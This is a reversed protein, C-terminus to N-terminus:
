NAIVEHQLHTHAAGHESLCPQRLLTEDLRSSAPPISVEHISHIRGTYFLIRETLTTKGSDIHASIGINRIHALDDDAEPSRELPLASFNRCRTGNLLPEAQCFYVCDSWKYHDGDTGKRGPTGHM